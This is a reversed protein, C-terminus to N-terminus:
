FSDATFNKDIFPDFVFFSSKPEKSSIFIEQLEQCDKQEQQKMTNMLQFVFKPQWVASM